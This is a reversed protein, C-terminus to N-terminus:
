ETMKGDRSVMEFLDETNRYEQGVRQRLTEIDLLGQIEQEMLQFFKKKLPFDIQMGHSPLESGERLFSSFEEFNMQGSDSWKGLFLDVGKEMLKSMSVPEPPYLQSGSHNSDLGTFNYTFSQLFHMLMKRDIHPESRTALLKYFCFAPANPQDLEARAQQLLAQTDAVQSFYQRLTSLNM